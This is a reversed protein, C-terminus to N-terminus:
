EQVGPLDMARQYIEQVIADAVEVYEERRLAKYLNDIGNAIKQGQYSYHSGSQELIGYYRGWAVIEFARDLGPQLDEHEVFIHRFEGTMFPVPGVKNKENKLTITRGWPEKEGEDKLFGGPRFRVDISKWHKLDNIQTGDDTDAGKPMWGGIKARMQSVWVIAADSLGQAFCANVKGNFDGWMQPGGSGYGTEGIDTDLARQTKITQVSDISVLSAFGARMLQITSELMTTGDTYPVIVLKDIDIGRKVAWDRDFEEGQVWIAVEDSAQLLAIADLIVTTKGVHEPGKVQTARTRPFGGGTIVDFTIWGTQIRDVSTMESGLHLAGYSTKNKRALEKNIKDMAKRAIAMRDFTGTEAAEQADEVIEGITDEMAPTKRKTAM